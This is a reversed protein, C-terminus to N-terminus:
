EKVSKAILPFQISVSSSLAINVLEMSSIEEAKPVPITLGWSVGKGIKLLADPAPTAYFIRQNSTVISLGMKMYTSFESLLSTVTM